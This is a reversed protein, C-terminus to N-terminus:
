ELIVRLIEPAEPDFNEGLHVHFGESFQGQELQAFLRAFFRCSKRNVYLVPVNGDLEIGGKQGPEEDLAIVDPGLEEFELVIKM